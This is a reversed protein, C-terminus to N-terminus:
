IPLGEVSSEWDGPQGMKLDVNKKLPLRNAQTKINFM